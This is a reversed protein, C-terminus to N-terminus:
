GEPNEKEFRADVFAVLADLEAQAEAIQKKYAKTKVNRDSMAKVRDTAREVLTNLTDFGVTEIDYDDVTLTTVIKFQSM